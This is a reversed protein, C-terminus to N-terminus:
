NIRTSNYEKFTSQKTSTDTNQIYKGKIRSRERRVKKCGIRDVM